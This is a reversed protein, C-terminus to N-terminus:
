FTTLLRYLQHVPLGMVNYYSGDLGEVAVCGIWEQIGYAGAKDYPKYNDIYFAIEEDSIDAFKVETVTTFSEMRESTRVCVGTAVIHKHGSLAHLMRCAAARDRPKGLIEGENIVVTDATILLDNLGLSDVIAEGKARALLEAAELAPTGEPIIEEGGCTIISFPIDLMGLLERRRPSKSGLLVNYKKINDLM